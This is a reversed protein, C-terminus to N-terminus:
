KFKGWVTMGMLNGAKSHVTLDAISDMPTPDVNIIVLKSGSLKAQYPINAAPYVVLSSGIVLMLDCAEAEREAQTIVDFPLMEGFLVVDPRILGECQTCRVPIKECSMDWAEHITYDCKCDLCYFRFTNGHLELVRQSGALRHQNDINQTVVAKVKGRRELEAVAYHSPNPKASVMLDHRVERFFRWYYTPDKHFYDISAFKEPDYKNWMGDAGRYTPIGSEASVGAGTFAVVHNSEEILGRLKKATQELEPIIEFAPEQIPQMEM